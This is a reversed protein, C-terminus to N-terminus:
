ADKMGKRLFEVPASSAARTRPASFPAVGNGSRELAAERAVVQRWYDLLYQVSEEFSYKPKWGTTQVFKDINPVSFSVDAPRLLAPDTRTRIPVASRSILLDLFEGVRIPTTSGINYVEGPQCYLIAEWYARMADRVDLLSRVSDINGHVLEGQLGYEIRAVQRAFSTAFLDTRRPNIYSFMRTRIIPMGYSLFYVGGLLDQTTKSVAYPNVPRLPADETIPASGSRPQGYVEATSCLKIIPNLGAHRVAEFLNVTGLVNNSIVSAPIIFSARVNAHAAMHFIVDPRVTRLVSLISGFDMLDCEHVTIRHAVAELNDKTTSHWRSIGHVEVHPHNAIIYEALYSGGAGGIGTILVRRIDSPTNMVGHNM